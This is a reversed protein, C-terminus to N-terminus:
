IELIDFLECSSAHRTLSPKILDFRGTSAKPEHITEVHQAYIYTIHHRGLGTGDKVM